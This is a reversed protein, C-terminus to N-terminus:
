EITVEESYDIETVTFTVNYLHSYVATSVDDIIGILVGGCTDKYIITKGILRNISEAETRSKFTYSVKLQRSAYTPTFAIPKERGAYYKYITYGNRSYNRVRRSSSYLLPIWETASIVYICDNKPTADVTITDSESYYDTATDIARLKYQTSGNAGVDTYYKNTGIYVPKNNRYALYKITSTSVSDTWRLSVAHNTPAATLAIVNDLPVNTIQVYQIETWESWEGNSALTRVQVPYVGDPYIRDSFYHSQASSYVAGTDDDSFRIQYATQATSSWTVTPRPKGNCTVSSTSAQVQVVFTDKVYNDIAYGNAYPRVRWNIIGVPLTNAPVTYSYFGYIGIDVLSETAQKSLLDIWTEGGDVSYQLDFETPYNTMTYETGDDDYVSVFWALKIDENGLCIAGSSPSLHYARPMLFKCIRGALASDIGYESTVKLNIIWENQNATPKPYDSPQITYNTETYAYDSLVNATSIGLKKIKAQPSGAEQSYTWVVPLPDTLSIKTDVIPSTIEAKPATSPSTYEVSYAIKVYHQYYIGEGVVAGPSSYPVINLGNKLIKQATAKDTISIDITTTGTEIENKQLVTGDRAQEWLTEADTSTLPEDPVYIRVNYSDSNTAAPEATIVINLCSLNVNEAFVDSPVSSLPKALIRFTDTNTKTGSAYKFKYGGLIGSSNIYTISGNYDSQEVGRPYRQTYSYSSM